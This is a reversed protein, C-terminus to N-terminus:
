YGVRENSKGGVSRARPAPATTAREGPSLAARHLDFYLHAPPLEEAPAFDMPRAARKGTVGLTLKLGNQTTEYSGYLKDVGQPLPCFLQIDIGAPNRSTDVTYRGGIWDTRGGIGSLNGIFIFGDYVEVRATLSRGGNGVLMATAGPAAFEMLSQEWSGRLAPVGAPPPMPERRFVLAVLKAQEDNPDFEAPRVRWDEPGVVHLKDQDLWYIMQDPRAQEGEPKWHTLDLWKPKKEPDLTAIGPEISHNGGLSRIRWWTDGHIFLRLNGEVGAYEAKFHNLAKTPIARELVWLGQLAERDTGPQRPGAGRQPPRQPTDLLRETPRATEPDIPATSPWVAALTGAAVLGAAVVAGSLAWWKSVFMSKLVEEMLRVPGVAISGVLEAGTAVMAAVTTTKTSLSLPVAAVGIGATTFLPVLGGAPLLTGHKLLRRRLLTRGRAIRSSLTGEPIGLEQAAEARSYGQLECLVLPERYKRPLANLETDLIPLWDPLEVTAAAIEDSVPAHQRLRGRAKLAVRVAVGYLWSGLREGRRVSRAKRILVLFTAQFAEEADHLNALLRRCVGLVM